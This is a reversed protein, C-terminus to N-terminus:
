CIWIPNYMWLGNNQNNIKYSTTFYDNNKILIYKNYNLVPFIDPKDRWINYIIINGTMGDLLMWVEFELDGHLGRAFLIQFGNINNNNDLTPICIGPKGEVIANTNYSKSWLIQKFSLDNNISYATIVFHQDLVILISNSNNVNTNCITFYGSKDNPSDKIKYLM